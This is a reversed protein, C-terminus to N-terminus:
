RKLEPLRVSQGARSLEDVLYRGAGRRRLDDRRDRYRHDM